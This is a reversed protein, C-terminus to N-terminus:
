AATAYVGIKILIFVQQGNNFAITTNTIIGVKLNYYVVTYHNLEHSLVTVNLFCFLNLIVKIFIHSFSLNGYGVIRSSFLYAGM